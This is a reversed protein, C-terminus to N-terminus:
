VSRIRTARASTRGARVATPPADLGDGSALDSRIDFEGTGVYIIKSDSPAIAIAGISAVPQHDFVFTWTVGWIGCNVAGFYFTQSRQPSQRRRHRPGGSPM